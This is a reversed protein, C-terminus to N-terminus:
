QTPHLCLLAFTSVSVSLFTLTLLLKEDKEGKLL